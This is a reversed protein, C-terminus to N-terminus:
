AYIWIASTDTDVWINGYGYSSGGYSPNIPRNFSDGFQVSAVYATPTGSFATAAGSLGDELAWRDASSDYGFAYGTGDANSQIVFGGDTASTSGSAFLAFKDEVYLNQTDIYTTTGNVTLNGQLITNGEVILNEQISATPIIVSNPLGITITQGSVSTEIENATGQITLSQTKLDISGTGTDGSVSLTAAIGTLGSGDGTFSGTFSGTAITNGNLYVNGGSGLNLTNASITLTNPSSSYINASQNGGQFFKLQSAYNGNIEIDAVGYTSPDSVTIKNIVELSGSINASGTYPFVAPASLAYSATSAYSASTASNATTANGANSAFSAYSASTATAASTASDATSANSAYSASTATTASNATNASAAFTAYSASTAIDAALAHSATAPTLTSAGQYSFTETLTDYVVVDNQSKSSLTTKLNGEFSGNFSGSISVGTAGTTALIDGSGNIDTTTLNGSAGTVVGSSLNDVHLAALEASSGSVVVKKWNAM